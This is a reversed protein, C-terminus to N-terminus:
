YIKLHSNKYLLRVFYRSFVCLSVCLFTGGHIFAHIVILALSKLVSLEAAFAMVESGSNQFRCPLFASGIGAPLNDESRCVCALAQAYDCAAPGTHVPVCVCM